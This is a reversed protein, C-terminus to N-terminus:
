DTDLEVVVCVPNWPPHLLEAAAVEIVKWFNHSKGDIAPTPLDDSSDCCTDLSNVSFAHITEVFM